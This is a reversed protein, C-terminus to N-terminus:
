IYDCNKGYVCIKNISISNFSFVSFIINNFSSSDIVTIYLYLLVSNIETNVCLRKEERENSSLM